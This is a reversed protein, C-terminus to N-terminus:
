HKVVMQKQFYHGKENQTRVFYVGPPMDSVDLGYEAGQTNPDMAYTKVLRGQMDFVMIKQIEVPAEFSATVQVNAPNPHLSLVNPRPAAPPVVINFSVTLGTGTTGGLNDASYPTATVTFAGTGFAQDFYDGGSDGFLAYPAVNETRTNTLGGTIQMLVSEVDGTAEARINLSPPLSFFVAGNAIPGIDVDNEADVLVFGTVSLVSTDTVTIPQTASSECNTTPNIYSYTIDYTGAGVTSPDFMGGSVGPGSYNGGTPSGGTLTLAPDTDLVDAFPALTVSPANPDELTVTLTETCGNTDTVTITYNGASLGSFTGTSQVVSGELLEYSIPPAGGVEAMSISGDSGGCTTPDSQNAVFADFSACIPNDVFEFSIVLPTGMEGTLSNGSYPTATIEFMGLPFVIGFYDGGSDGFLAYPAVNETRTGIQDGTLELLVSETDATAVAQINLNMTLFGSVDIVDGDILPRLVVDNDADILNFSIISLVSTDIVTIFQAAMGTCGNGDTYSYTIEYTGAGVASPDFMGGSVGPGGYDGGAPSGGTLTFAPDTDLADAFPALTVTPAAPDELTVTLTETCGNADTVTVTYTGAMLNTAINSDLGGDHAWAFTVPAASDSVGIEISGDAAGCTTPDSQNAVFTDFSTCAPNGDVFEFGITLGTGMTGGLNDASYPTATLDYPGLPFVNPSYDGSIDGFLAYPDINETMTKNQPGTLELLVSETDATAVAQINLNMTLLGGVDIVDGDMLTRLVVDNDADILNFGTVTLAACNLGADNITWGYTDIIQQRADAALCYQNQPADLQVGNQLLPLQSWGILTKDYNENSLGSGDFIWTMNEVKGVNWAELNNNFSIANNFLLRMDTVNEVNWQGIDQNFETANAFMSSINTVNEIDWNSIDQNFASAAIFMTAMSTVESVIWDGIDQNFSTANAFMQAMNGVNSVDWNGIPQNFNSARSFMAGMDTVSSVDWTNINQNFATAESFMGLMNQVKSTNWSSIDQNFSTASSFVQAMNDVNGVDWSGIPQDFNSALSFMASMDTVSSVDWTGINQNFSQAGSFFRTMNIAKGVDWASIDQNFSSAQFFVGSFDTVNSVNWTNFSANGLLSRCSNFMYDLSTVSEMNPADSAVVDLNQCGSFARSMSTWQIDGWQNIFLIKEKDGANNFIIRPFDGSISVTYTGPNIYTHTADGTEDTPQSADGWDVTYNYGAGLTPITITENATTTQWTTIFPRQVPTGLLSVDNGDGGVYSIIGSFAGFSIAAGEALGVFTGAVADTGDNEILIIEDTPANAYGGILNLTPTNLTVTGTVVIQDHETGPTPGNVEADFIGGSELTFDGVILIGPSVGPAVTSTGDINVTGTISGIGILTSGNTFNASDTVVTTLDNTDFIGNSVNLTNLELDGSGIVQADLNNLTLGNNAGLLQLPTLLSITNAGGAGDITLGNTISALPIEVTNADIQVVGTGSIAIFNVTNSIRLNGDNISLAFADDSDGGNTDMIDLSGDANLMIETEAVGVTILQDCSDSINGAEDTATWSITTDGLPYPDTLPLTDSRNGEFTFTSSVNDTATPDVLTVTASIGSAIVEVIDDPCTIIPAESDLNGAYEYIVVKGEDLVDGSTNPNGLVVINGAKNIACDQGAEAYIPQGLLQWQAGNFQFIRAPQYFDGILIIDGAGNMDVQYGPQDIENVAFITQGLQVWNGNDFQFVKAYDGANAGVVLRDGIDNLHVSVGFFDDDADENSVITNGLLEWDGNILEFVQVYGDERPRGFGSTEVQYAGVALRTGNTNLSVDRGFTDGDGTGSLTSGLQAWQGNKFEFVATQGQRNTGGGAYGIALRDGSADFDVKQIFTDGVAAIEAGLQAWNNNILEFVKVNGNLQSVALRNGVDNLDTGSFGRGLAGGPVTGGLPSWTTGNRELITVEGLNGLGNINPNVYAVRDGTANISVGAGLQDGPSGVINPGIDFWCDGSGTVTIVQECSESINGAEDEATWLITTAGVFFPDTLPLEDNRIGEFTFNTSANDTAMPNVIPVVASCSMGADQVIDDPCNIVPVEADISADICFQFSQEAIFRGGRFIEIGNKSVVFSGNGATCCIGDGFTDFMTFTYTGNALGTFTDNITTNSETATYTASDVITGNQDKLEWSTEAAFQDFIIELDVDGSTCPTDGLNTTFHWPFGDGVGQTGEWANGALDEILGPPISISLLKNAPLDEPPNITLTSVSGDDTLSFDGNALTLEQVTGFGFEFSLDFIFISEPTSSFQVLENFVATFTQDVPVLNAGNLPNLTAQTLVVDQGDTITWNFNDILNQRATQGAGSSQSNGAGFIINSPIQTEGSATDLTSWGNLLIDYNATSLGDFMQQATVLSSIDWNGLPQDFSTALAFMSDMDAVASVDWNDLPQDFNTARFFMFRMDTVSGVNWNGIPQNFNTTRGFMGGMNTISSVDWNGFSSNGMLNSCGRFMNFAQTVGSLDPVDTAMIDLNSCGEFAAGFSQWAITGWQKVLLLKESDSVPPNVFNAFRIAPFNGTISVDYTGASAYTHTISGAVSADSSGDGWDVTYNYTFTPDIPITIQNSASVGPNDTKWTTVFAGPVLVQLGILSVDNGDGGTYSITGNFGGFAVSAGEALGTFTGTVADTGDNDILIIEDTPANAYGGILNLTPSNLTVTGTVVIQDHETGPTPGNVEADFTSGNELILDGTNMIGPSTGPAVTSTGDINVTGIISGIGVLTSGNTFNATETILTTLNNTDFIGNNVNLENLQFDDSGTLQVDINSLTLGNDPGLLQLSTDLMLTNAGGGGDLTLGNTINALPIQVTNADVQVVGDGSISISSTSGLVLNGGSVSITFGDDSDGGNTDNITLMGDPELVAETEPCNKGGDTITWGFNDILDQRASEGVCYQSNGAGLTINNPIQVEGNATDLTSWGLLLADYNEFSLGANQFMDSASAIDPGDPNGFPDLQFEPTLNGIDWADLNQDFSTANQFMRSMNQVLSVNWDGLPQNFNTAGSFMNQMRTVQSVDWNNLPQNFSGAGSFVLEMNGVQDVDWSDVNQDFSTAGQFMSRMSRLASTTWSGIPQDFAEARAFMEDMSTVNAVNWNSIDQNFLVADSFMRYTSTITSVDWNNFAPTGVLSRCLQFMAGLNTVQSLDPTDTATVDLLECGIFSREFSVWEINGWQEITRINFRNPNFTTTNVHFKPFTGVISVTYRGQTAYSHNANGTLGTEVTGDGWDISYDYTLNNDTPIFIALTPPVEWTTIFANSFDVTSCNTDLGSDNITWGFNDIITQRAAAGDCYTSNAMDFVVNSQLVPIAAWGILTADYNATSLGADLFMEVMSTVSTVNWNALSQDFFEDDKFMEAMNTVNSVQWDGIDRNFNSALFMNGMDTVSSVDWNNIDQNFMTTSVFLGNMNVVNSVDWSSFSTNGQLNRCSFLMNSMDTVNSLDPIDTAVVDLNTCGMFANQMSTWGIDGWQAVTVIKDKDGANNFYIRPFTGSISITHTGPNAYTHAADGTQNTEVTGDGWDITYDYTEGSFTPITISENATTTQWTTIFPDQGFAKFCFITTLFFVFFLLVRKM